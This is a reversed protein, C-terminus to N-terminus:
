DRNELSGQTRKLVRGNLGAHKSIVRNKASSCHQRQRSEGGYFQDRSVPFGIRKGIEAFRQEDVRRVGCPFMVIFSSSAIFMSLALTKPPKALICFARDSSNESTPRHPAFEFYSNTQRQTAYRALQYKDQVQVCLGSSSSRLVM